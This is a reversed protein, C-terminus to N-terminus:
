RVVHAAVAGMSTALLSGSTAAGEHVVIRRARTVSKLDVEATRIASVLEASPTTLELEALDAGLSLNAESKYRRVATAIEVLAEGAREAAEDILSPNAQPWPSTHVSSGGQAGAFLGLYIEDTVYPLIPAFLQVVTLLAAHL